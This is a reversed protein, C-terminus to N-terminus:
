ERRGKENMFFPAARVQGQSIKWEPPPKYTAFDVLYIPTARHTAWWALLILLPTM